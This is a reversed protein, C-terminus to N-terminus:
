KRKKSIFVLSLFRSQTEKATGQPHAAWISTGTTKVFRSLKASGCRIWQGVQLKIEGNLVKLQIESDWLDVTKQYKM